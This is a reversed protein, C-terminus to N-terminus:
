TEGVWLVIGVGTCYQYCFYHGVACLKTNCLKMACCKRTTTHTYITGTMGGFLRFDMSGHVTKNVRSNRVPLLCRLEYVNM